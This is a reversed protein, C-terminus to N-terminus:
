VLALFSCCIHDTLISCHWCVRGIGGGRGGGWSNEVGAPFLGQFSKQNTMQLNSVNTWLFLNTKNQLKLCYNATAVCHFLSM